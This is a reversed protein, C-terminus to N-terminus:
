SREHEVEVAFDRFQEDFGSAVYFGFASSDKIRPEHGFHAIYEQIYEELTTLETEGREARELAELESPLLEDRSISPYQSMDGFFPDIEPEDSMEYGGFLVSTM